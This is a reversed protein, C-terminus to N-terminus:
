LPKFVKTNFVKRFEDASLGAAECEQDFLTRKSVYEDSLPLELRAATENFSTSYLTFAHRDIGTKDLLIGVM